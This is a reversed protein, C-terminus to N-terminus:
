SEIKKVMMTRAITYGYRRMFAKSHQEVFFIISSANVEAALKEAYESTEDLAAINPKDHETQHCVIIRHGYAQQVDVVAHETIQLTSEDFTVLIHLSEDGSFLRGMWGLIIPDAPLEPSYKRAFTIMRNHLQDHLIRSLQNNGLRIM